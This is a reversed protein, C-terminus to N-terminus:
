ARKMCKTVKGILKRRAEYIAQFERWLRKDEEKSEAIGFFGPRLIESGVGLSIMNDITDLFEDIVLIM